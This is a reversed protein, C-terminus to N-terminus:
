RGLLTPAFIAVIQKQVIVEGMKEKAENVKNL